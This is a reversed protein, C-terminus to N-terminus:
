WDAEWTVRSPRENTALFQEAAAIAAHEPVAMETMFEDVQDRCLFELFGKRERDGLSHFSTGDDEVFTLVSEERGVGFVLIRGDEAELFIMTPQGSSRVSEVVLRLDNPSYVSSENAGWNAKM